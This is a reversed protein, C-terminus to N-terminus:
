RRLSLVEKDTINNTVIIQINDIIEDEIEDGILESFEKTESNFKLYYEENTEFAQNAKKLPNLLDSSFEKSDDYIHERCINNFLILYQDDDYIASDSCVRIECSYDEDHLLTLINKAETCAFFTQDKLLLFDKYDEDWNLYAEDLRHDQLMYNKIMYNGLYDSIKNMGSTNTHESDMMDVALDIVSNMQLFNIVTANYENELIEFIYNAYKQRETDCVYPNNVVILKIDKLDCLKAIKRLYQMGVPEKEPILPEYVIANQTQPSPAFFRDESGYAWTGKQRSPEVVFDAQSLRDWRNHYLGVNFLYELRIKKNDILDNVAKIKTKSIPFADFSLHSDNEGEGNYKMVGDLGWADVIVVKPQCYDFAMEMEWYTVAMPEGSNGLNYSTIGYKNWLYMPSVDCAMHSSGFMLVDIQEAEEFFPKYTNHPTKVEMVHALGYLMSVTIGMFIVISLIRRINREMVAM